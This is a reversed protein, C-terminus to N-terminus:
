EARPLQIAIRTGEGAVSHASLVGGHGEVIKQSVAMGLGTGKEKTTFFPSFIQKLAEEDMGSGTDQISLHVVNEGAVATLRIEGKSEISQVANVLINMLVQRIKDGDALIRLDPAIETFITVKNPDYEMYRMAAQAISACSTPTMKLEVPRTYELLGNVVKELSATGVLIKQVLRHRPDDEPTDQSLFTAFGRIGGLPNRIEHAVTAAMEGIAALRDIQRVQERLASLESLDQFTKVYGLRNGDRDAIVSDRESVPVARGSKAELETTGPTTTAAFPRGFVKSFSQGVIEEASFGLVLSAARNFRTVTEQTDVAIVGDSISELLNSLYDTTLALQLNKTALEQDLDTVRQQLHRYAEEMSATTKTFLDFAQALAEVDTKPAEM